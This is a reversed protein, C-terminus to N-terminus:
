KQGPFQPLFPLAQRLKEYYKRITSPSDSQIVGMISAISGATSLAVMPDLLLFFSSFFLIRGVLISGGKVADARRRRLIRKREPDTTLLEAESNEEIDKAIDRLLTPIDEAFIKEGDEDKAAELLGAIKTFDGAAPFDADDAVFAADIKQAKALAERCYLRMLDQHDDM